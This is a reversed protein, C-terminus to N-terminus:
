IIALREAFRVFQAALYYMYMPYEQSNTNWFLIPAMWYM